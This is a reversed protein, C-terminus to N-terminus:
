RTHDHPGRRSARCASSSRGRHHPGAAHGGQVRRDRVIRRRLRGSRRVHADYRPHRRTGDGFSLTFSSIPGRSTRGIFTVEMPATGTVDTATLTADPAEAGLIVLETTHGALITAGALLQLDLSSLHDPPAVAATAAVGFTVNQGVALAGTRTCTATSSGSCTWGTTLSTGFSIGDGALTVSPTFAATGLNKVEVDIRGAVGEVLYGGDPGASADGQIAPERLDITRSSTDDNPDADDVVTVRAMNLVSTAAGDAVDVEIMIEPAPTGATLADSRTCTVLRGVISCTWGAGDASTPVLRTPLTDTVTISGATPLAGFNVVELGIEAAGGIEVFAPATQFIAANIADQVFLFREDTDTQPDGSATAYASIRVTVSADAAATLPVELVAQDEAGIETDSRCALVGAEFSCVWPGYTGSEVSVDEPLSIDLMIPTPAVVTGINYVTIPVTVPVGTILDVDDIFPRVDPVGVIQIFVSDDDNSLNTDGPFGLQASLSAAPYADITAL